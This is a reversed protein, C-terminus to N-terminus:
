RVREALLALDNPSDVGRSVGITGMLFVSEKAIADDAMRAFGECLSKVDDPVEHGSQEFAELLDPLELLLRVRAHYAEIMGVGDGAYMKLNAENNLEDLRRAVSALLDSVSGPKEDTKEHKQETDM